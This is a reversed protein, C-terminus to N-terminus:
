RDFHRTSGDTDNDLTQHLLSNCVSIGGGFRRGWWDVCSIVPSPHTYKGMLVRWLAVIRSTVTDRNEHGVACSVMDAAHFTKVFDKVAQLTKLLM